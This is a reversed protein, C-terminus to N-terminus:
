AAIPLERFNEIRGRNQLTWDVLEGAKEQIELKQMPEYDSSNANETFTEIFDFMVKKPRYSSRWVALTTEGGFKEPISDIYASTNKIADTRDDGKLLSSPKWLREKKIDPLIDVPCGLQALVSPKFEISALKEFKDKIIEYESKCLTIIEGFRDTLREYDGVHIQRISGLNSTHCMGNTCLMRQTFVSGKVATRGILDNLIRSGFKIFDKGDQGHSKMEMGEAKDLFSLSLRTNSIVANDFDLSKDKVINKVVDLNHLPQYRQGVMGIIENLSEDIVFRSRGLNESARDTVMLDNIVQTSLGPRNIKKLTDYLGSGAEMRQLFAQMGSENFTLDGIRCDDEFYSGNFEDVDHYKISRKEQDCFHELEDIDGFSHTAVPATELM